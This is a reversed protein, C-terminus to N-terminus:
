KDTHLNQLKEIECCTRKLAKFSFVFYTKIDVSYKEISRNTSNLTYWHQLKIIGLM